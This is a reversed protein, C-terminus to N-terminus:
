FPNPNNVLELNDGYDIFCVSQTQKTNLYLLNDKYEYKYGCYAIFTDVHTGLEDLQTKYIIEDVKIIGTISRILDGVKYTANNKAYDNRLNHLTDLFLKHAGKELKKLKDKTM